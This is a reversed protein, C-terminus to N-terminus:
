PPAGDDATITFGVLQTVPPPPLDGRVIADLFERGSMTRGAEALAHPDDWQVLRERLIGINTM